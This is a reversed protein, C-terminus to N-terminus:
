PASWNSQSMMVYKDLTSSYRVTCMGDVIIANATLATNNFYVIAKAGTSNANLTSAGTNSNIPRFTCEFGDILTPVHPLTVVYADAVGTDVAFRVTGRKFQIENPLKDLGTAIETAINNVQAALARIGSAIVNTAHNFYDNAM